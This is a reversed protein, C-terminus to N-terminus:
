RAEAGQNLGSTGSARDSEDDETRPAYPDSDATPDPEGVHTALRHHPEPRESETADAEDTAPLDEHPDKPELPRNVAEAPDAAREYV